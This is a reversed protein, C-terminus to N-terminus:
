APGGAAYGMVVVDFSGRDSRHRHIAEVCAALTEPSMSMETEGASVAIWGDWRAARRLSAGSKGGPWIPIRPRQVPGAGLAVGDVRFLPGAHNVVDGSWLATVVDLGEDLMSARAVRDAEGGFAADE